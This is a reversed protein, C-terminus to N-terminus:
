LFTKDNNIATGNNIFYEKTSYWGRPYERYQAQKNTIAQKLKVKEQIPNYKFKIRKKNKSESKGWISMSIIKNLINEMENLNEGNIENNLLRQQIDIGYISKFRNIIEKSQKSLKDLFIKNKNLKRNENVTNNAETLNYHRIIKAKRIPSSTPNINMNESSKNAYFRKSKIISSNKFRDDINDLCNINPMKSNNINSYEYTKHNNINFEDNKNKEFNIIEKIYENNNQTNDYSLNINNESCNNTSNNCYQCCDCEGCIIIDKNINRDLDFKIKDLLSIITKIDINLGTLYGFIMPNNSNQLNLIQNLKIQNSFLIQYIKEIEELSPKNFNM